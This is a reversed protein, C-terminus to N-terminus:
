AFREMIKSKINDTIIWRWYALVVYLGTLCLGSLLAILNNEISTALFLILIVGANIIAPKVWVKIFFEKVNIGLKFMAIVPLIIGDTCVLVAAISAAVGPLGIDTKTLIVYSIVVSVTAAIINTAAVKGHENIAILSNVLPMHSITVMHGLSLLVIVEKIVYDPGMWLDILISGLIALFLIGPMTISVTYKTARMDLDILEKKNNTAQMESIVPTLTNGLKGVFVRLHQVLAVPRMFVALFQPGMLSVIMVSNTQYLLLQSLSNLFNKGGFHFMELASAYNFHSLKVSLHTCIKYAITIRVITTVISGVLYIAALAVVDGGFYLVLVMVFITLIHTLSNNLNYLDWRHMGTIVGDYAGFATKIALSLGLLLILSKADDIHDSLDQGWFISVLFYLSITLSFILCGMLVQIIFVSVVSKNLNDIDDKAIYKAVYRNVSTGIGMQILSLYNVISWAFDWIGLLEQGLNDNIARPLFFGAIIFALHGLWSWIVNSFLTERGNM